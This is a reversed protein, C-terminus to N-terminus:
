QLKVRLEQHTIQGGLNATRATLIASILGSILLIPVVWRSLVRGNRGLFLAMAAALGTFFVATTAQDAAQEHRQVYHRHPELRTAAAEAAFDGTFKLAIAVVSFILIWWLALRTVVEVRRLWGWGLLLILFPIGVVSIHNLALHIKVWDM